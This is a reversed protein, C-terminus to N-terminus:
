ANKQGNKGKSLVRIFADVLVPNFQKGKGKKLEACAAESGMAQRYPRDSTMADYSDAVALAMAGRSIIADYSEAVAIIGAGQSIHEGPIGDPYGKGDYREHHHRVMELVEKDEIIPSLIHEGLECHSKVHEYEDDTLKGPKNLVSERVGIKGIDHLLGALRIKEITDQPLGLEEAIALATDTVRQSHGSTYKDKAELAYALSTISNLFSQRIKRTQEEVREELHLQYGKNELILRKRDLARDISVLLMNLDVPKIIYDYAGMKMSKIATQVDAVATVMITATDAYKVQIERLVDVGSKGPMTIDLLVLDFRRSKLQKLANDGDFATACKHGEEILKQSLIERIRPEDDVILTKVKNPGRRKM